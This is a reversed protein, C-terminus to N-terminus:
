EYEYEFPSYEPGFLAARITAIGGADMPMDHAISRMHMPITLLWRADDSVLQAGEIFGWRSFDVEFTGVCTPFYDCIRTGNLTVVFYLPQTHCTRGLKHTAETSRLREPGLVLSNSGNTPHWFCSGPTKCCFTQGAAMLQPLLHQKAREVQKQKKRTNKPM